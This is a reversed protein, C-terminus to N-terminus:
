DEVIRLIENIDEIRDPEDEFYYNTDLKISYVPKPVWDLGTYPPLSVIEYVIDQEIEVITSIGKYWEIKVGPKLDDITFNNYRKCKKLYHQWKLYSIFSSIRWM